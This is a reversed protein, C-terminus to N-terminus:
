PTLYCGVARTTRPAPPSGALIAALVDQLDHVVAAPRARGFDQYLDDIRGRYVWTGPRPPPGPLYVTVEPTVKAHTLKVLVHDPDRLAPLTFGYEKQHARVTAVSVAPDAYVAWFTIGRSGFETALQNLTPIYRNSIPCDPAVFVLVVARAGPSVLPDVPAGALNVAAPEAAALSLAGLLSLAFLPLFPM